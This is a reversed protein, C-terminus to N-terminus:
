PMSLPERRTGRDTPRGSLNEYWQCSDQRYPIWLRLVCAKSGLWSDWFVPNADWSQWENVRQSRPFYGLIRAKSEEDAFHSPSQGVECWQQSYETLFNFSFFWRTSPRISVLHETSLLPQKQINNIIGPKQRHVLLILYNTSNEPYETKVMKAMDPTKNKAMRTSRYHYSMITKIQM